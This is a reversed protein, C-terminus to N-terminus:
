DKPLNGFKPKLKVVTMDIEVQFFRFLRILTDNCPNYKEGTESEKLTSMRRLTTESLGTGDILMEMRKQDTGFRNICDSFFEPFLYDRDNNGLLKKGEIFNWIEKYYSPTRAM